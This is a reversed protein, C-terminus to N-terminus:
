HWHFLISNWSESVKSDSHPPTFFKYICNWDVYRSWLFLKLSWPADNAICDGFYLLLANVMVYYSM